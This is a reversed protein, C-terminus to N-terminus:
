TEVGKKEAEKREKVKQKGEAFSKKFFDKIETSSMQQNKKFMEKSTFGLAYTIAGMLVADLAMGVATTGGMTIIGAGKLVEAFFKLGLTTMFFMMGVSYFIQKMLQGAKENTLTQGYVRGLWAIMVTSVAIFTWVNIGLPVLGLGANLAVASWVIANAQEDTGKKEQLVQEFKQRAAERPDLSM